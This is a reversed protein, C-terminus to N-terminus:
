VVLRELHLQSLPLSHIPTYLIIDEKDYCLEDDTYSGDVDHIYIDRINYKNKIGMNHGLLDLARFLNINEDRLYGIPGDFDFVVISFANYDYSFEYMDKGITVQAVQRTAKIDFDASIPEM